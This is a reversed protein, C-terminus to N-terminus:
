VSTAAAPAPNRWLTADELLGAVLERLSSATFPKDICPQTTTQLFTRAEDAFAGGSMFVMRRAHEPFERELAAHLAMGSFHPILLDCIVIDYEFKARLQELADEPRTTTWVDHSPGLLRRAASLVLQDDDIIM